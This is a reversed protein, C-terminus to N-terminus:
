VTIVYLSLNRLSFAHVERLSIHVLHVECDIM